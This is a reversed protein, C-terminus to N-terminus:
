EYLVPTANRVLKWRINTSPDLIEGDTEFKWLLVKKRPLVEPPALFFNYGGIRGSVPVQSLAVFPPKPFDSSSLVKEASPSFKLYKARFTSWTMSPVSSDPKEGDPVVLIAMNRADMLFINTDQKPFSAKYKLIREINASTHLRPFLAVSTMLLILIGSLAVLFWPVFDAKRKDSLSIDRGTALSLSLFCAILPYIFINVRWSDDFYIFPISFLIGVWMAIWFAASYQTFLTKHRVALLIGFFCVLPWSHCLFFNIKKLFEVEGEALRKFFIGPSNLLNKIGQRYFFSSIQKEGKLQRLQEGYYKKLGIWETGLTLGAFVYAFNSGTQQTDGAGRNAFNTNLCAVATACLCLGLLPKKWWDHGPNLERWRWLVYIFLAPILFMSGMRVLLGVLTVTFAALDWYLRKENLAHLWLTAAACGWFFGLPETLFSSLYEAVYSYELAMCGIAAWTGFSKNVVACSAWMGCSILLCRLMLAVVPDNSALWHISAGMFAAFPRRLAWDGMVGDYFYMTYRLYHDNADSWPLIRAFTGRHGSWSGSLFAEGLTAFLLTFIILVSVLNWKKKLATLVRCLFSQQRERHSICSVAFGTFAYILLAKALSYPETFANAVHPFFLFIERAALPHAVLLGYLFSTIYVLSFLLGFALPVLLVCLCLAMFVPSDLARAIVKTLPSPLSSFFREKLTSPSHVM